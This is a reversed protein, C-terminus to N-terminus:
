DEFDGFTQQIEDFFRYLRDAQDSHICNSLRLCRLATNTGLFPHIRHWKPALGYSFLMLNEIPSSPVEMLTRFEDAVDQTWKDLDCLHLERLTPLQGLAHFFPIFWASEFRNFVDADSLRDSVAMISVANLGRNALFARSLENCTEESDLGLLSISFGLLSSMGQLAKAPALGGSGLFMSDCLDLRHIGTNKQLVGASFLECQNQTLICQRLSLEKLNTVSKLHEFFTDPLTRFHVGQGRLSAFRISSLHPMTGLQSSLKDIPSQDTRDNFEICRLSPHSQLALAFQQSDVNKSIGLNIRLTEIGYCRKVFLAALNMDAVTNGEFVLEMEKLNGLSGIAQAFDTCRQYWQLITQRSLSTPDRKEPVQIRISVVSMNETAAQRFDDMDMGISSTSLVKTVYRQSVQSNRPFLHEIRNFHLDRLIKQVSILPLVNALLVDQGETDLLDMNVETERGDM